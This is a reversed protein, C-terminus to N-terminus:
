YILHPNRKSMNILKKLQKDKLNDLRLLIVAGAKHGKVPDNGVLGLFGVNKNNFNMNWYGSIGATEFGVPIWMGVLQKHFFFSIDALKTDVRLSNELRGGPIGPVARGDPLTNADGLGIDLNALDETDLYFQLLMGGDMANPAFEFYSNRTEPVPAKFGADVQVNLLKLTLLIQGDVVNITPGKVGNIEPLGSVSNGCSPTLVIAMCLVAAKISLMWKKM